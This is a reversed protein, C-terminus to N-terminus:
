EDDVEKRSSRPKSIKYIEAAKAAEEPTLDAAENTVTVTVAPGPAPTESEVLLPHRRLLKLDEPDETDYPLEFVRERGGPHLITKAPVGPLRDKLDFRPM